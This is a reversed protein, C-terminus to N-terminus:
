RQIEARARPNTAARGEFAATAAGDAANADEPTGNALNAHLERTAPNQVEFQEGGAGNTGGGGRARAADHGVGVAARRDGRPRSGVLRGAPRLREM